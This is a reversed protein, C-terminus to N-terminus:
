LPAHARMPGHLEGPNMAMLPFMPAYPYGLSLAVHITGHPLLQVRFVKSKVMGLTHVPSPPMGVLLTGAPVCTGTCYM